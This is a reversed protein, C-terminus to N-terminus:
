QADSIRVWTRPESDSVEVMEDKGHFEFTRLRSTGDFFYRPYEVVIQKADQSHLRWARDFENSLRITGDARFTEETMRPLDDTFYMRPTTYQWTGVIRCASSDPTPECAAVMVLALPALRPLM